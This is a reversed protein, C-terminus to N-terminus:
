LISSLAALLTGAGVSRLLTRRLVPEPFLGHLLATEVGRAIGEEASRAPLCDREGCSCKGEILHRHPTPRM